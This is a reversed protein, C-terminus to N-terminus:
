MLRCSPMATAARALQALRTTHSVTRDAEAEAKAHLADRVARAWTVGDVATDGFEWLIAGGVTPYAQGIAALEAMAREFTAPDGNNDGLMGFVLRSPDFGQEVISRFTAATFCGYAQVNYQTVFAAEPTQQLAHYSFGGLGVAEADALSMALPAMTIQLPPQRTVFDAHLRALLRRLMGLAVTADPDLVEEIDLDIGALLTAHKHLFRRVLAYCPEFNAFLDGYAGGAGGLMVRVEVPCRASAARDAVDEFFADLTDVDDNNLHLYPSGDPNTGLHLSSLYVVLREQPSRTPDHFLPELSSATPRGTVPDTAFTQAYVHVTEDVTAM